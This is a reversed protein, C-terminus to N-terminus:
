KSKNNNSLKKVMYTPAILDEEIYLNHLTQRIALSEDQRLSAIKAILLEVMAVPTVVSFTHAVGQAPAFLVFDALEEIASGLSGAIAVTKAGQQRALSLVQVSDRFNLWLSAAVMVDQQTVDYLAIVGDVGGSDLLEGRLGVHRLLRVLLHAVVAASGTGYVLIRRAKILAEAVIELTSEDLGTLATEFNNRQQVMTAALIGSAEPESQHELPMQVGVKEFYSQRVAAQLDSYGDYGLSKALRIVTIGSVKFLNELTKLTGFAFVEPKDLLARALQSQKRPLIALQSELKEFDFNKIM